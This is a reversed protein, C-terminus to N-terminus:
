FLRVWYAALAGVTLAFSILASMGMVMWTIRSVRGSTDTLMKFQVPHAQNDSNHAQMMRDLQDPFIETLYRDFYRNIQLDAIDMIQQREIANM